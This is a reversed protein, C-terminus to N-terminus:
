LDIQVAGVPACVCIQILDGEDGFVRGDRLDRVEGCVLKATCGHCIGMRCGHAPTLGAREATELISESGERTAQKSSGTFDLTGVTTDNSAARLAPRFREITLQEALGQVSWQTEIADLMASPGCAWVRRSKWDACAAKLHAASFHGRLGNDSGTRTHVFQVTLAPHTKSLALLEERFITDAPSPTYYLLTAQPMADRAAASRLLSMVPTIGSGAAIFLAADNMAYPMTFDGDAAAIDIVTGVTLERVLFRSVRGDDVAKVTICIRGDGAEPASSISYCRTHRVGDIAVGIRIYQGARHGAWRVGPQLTITASDATEATVAEVRAHLTDRTWLPNVLSIFDDPIFPTTLKAAFRTLSNATNM